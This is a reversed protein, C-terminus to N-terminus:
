QFWRLLYNSIRKISRQCYLWSIYFFNSQRLISFFLFIIPYFFYRFCYTFVAITSSCHYFQRSFYTLLILSSLLSLLISSIFIIFMLFHLSINSVFILFLFCYTLSLAVASSRFYYYLFM